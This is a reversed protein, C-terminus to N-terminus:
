KGCTQGVAFDVFQIWGKAGQQSLLLASEDLVRVIGQLLPRALQIERWTCERRYAASTVLGMCLVYTGSIVATVAAAGFRNNWLKQQWTAVAVCTGVCVWVPQSFQVFTCLAM